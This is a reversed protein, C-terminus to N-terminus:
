IELRGQFLFDKVKFKKKIVIRSLEIQLEVDKNKLTIPDDKPFLFFILPTKQGVLRISQAQIPDHNKRTLTARRSLRDPDLRDFIVSPLGELSVIYSSDKRNLYREITQSSADRIMPSNMLRAQKLPLSSEWRILLTRGSARRSGAGRGGGSSGSPSSGVEQGRPLGGSIDQASFGKQQGPQYRGSGSRRGKKGGSMSVRVKKAWPSDNLIKQLQKGDRQTYPIKDWFGGAKITLSIGLCTALFLPILRHKQKVM